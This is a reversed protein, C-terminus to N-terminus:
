FHDKINIKFFALSTGEGKGKKGGGVWGEGFSRQIAASPCLRYFAESRRLRLDVVLHQFLNPM